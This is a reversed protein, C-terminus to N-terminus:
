EATYVTGRREYELYSEVAVALGSGFERELLYLGLDLGSSVGGATLVDGADVVRAEVVEAETERMDDLAGHHTVAPRGDLLGTRALLMGGSCVGALTAEGALDALLDPIAGREAEAWAGSDERDNWGGGPVVLLDPDMEAVTGESVVVAGDGSRVTEAPEATVLSVEFGPGRAAGASLVEFPGFADLSEFGDFVLVGATDIDAM